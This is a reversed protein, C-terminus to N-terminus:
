RTIASVDPSHLYGSLLDLVHVLQYLSLPVEEQTDRLLPLYLQIKNM